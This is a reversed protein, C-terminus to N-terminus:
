ETQKHSRSKKASYLRLFIWEAQMEETATRQWAEEALLNEWSINLKINALSMLIGSYTQPGGIRCLVKRELMVDKM